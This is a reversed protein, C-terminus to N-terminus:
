DTVFCLMTLLSLLLLLVKAKLPDRVLWADVKAVREPTAVRRKPDALAREEAKRRTRNMWAELSQALTPPRPPLANLVEQPSKPPQHQQTSVFRRCVSRLLIIRM